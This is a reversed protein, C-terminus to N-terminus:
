LHKFMSPATTYTVVLTQGANLLFNPTTPLLSTSLLASPTTYGAYVISTVVGGAVTVSENISGATYTFPSAGVTITTPTITVGSAFGGNATDTGPVIISNSLTWTGATAQLVYGSIASSTGNGVVPSNGNLSVLGQGLKMQLGLSSGGAFGGLNPSTSSGLFWVSDGQSEMGTLAAGGGGGTKGVFFDATSGTNPANTIRTNGFTAGSSNTYIRAIIVNNSWFDIADSTGPNVSIGFGAGNTYSSIGTFTQNAGLLAVNAGTNLTIAQNPNSGSATVTINGSTGVLGLAATLDSPVAGSFYVFPDATSAGSSPATKYTQDGYLITSSSATGTGLNATPVKGILQLSNLNSIESGNGFISFNTGDFGGYASAGNWFTAASITGTGQFLPSTIAGTAVVTTAAIPILTGDSNTTYRNAFTPAPCLFPFAVILCLILILTKM